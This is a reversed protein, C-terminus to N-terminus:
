LYPITSLIYDLVCIQTLLKMKVIYMIIKSTQNFQYTQWITFSNLFFKTYFVTLMILNAFCLHELKLLSLSLHSKTDFVILSLRCMLSLSINHPDSSYKMVIGCLAIVTPIKHIDWRESEIWKVNLWSTWLWPRLTLTPTFNMRKRGQFQM